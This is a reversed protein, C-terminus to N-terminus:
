LTAFQTTVTLDAAALTAIQHGVLLIHDGVEAGGSKKKLKTIRAAVVGPVRQLVAYVDSLHVPQGLERADFAFHAAVADEAAKEVTELLHADDVQLTAAVAFPVNEHSRLRLARNVDRKADLDAAITALANESLVAGGEAAVTLRVVREFDDVTWTARAKAVTAHERAADEFDRLSVIRGFTRVTNPANVRILERSEGAAGGEAPAPNTASKLGAPRDLLNSLAGARVNGAKGVGTRYKATVNSRGTNLRSGPEGGFQVSMTEDDEIRTVFVREDKGRGLLTEVETWKVGDVRVELTNAVSNRAGARPVFTVPTKAVGFSQFRQSADGSGLVEHKVTEGHTVRAVNGYLTATAADLDRTLGPTFTIHLFGASTSTSVVTATHPQKKADDLLITRGKELSAIEAAPVLVVSGNILAPHKKTALPLPDGHVEVVTIRRRDALDFMPVGRSVWKDGTWERLESGGDSFARLNGASDHACTLSEVEPEHSLTWGNWGISNPASQKKLYVGGDHGRAFAYIRGNQQRGVALRDIWGGLSSWGSWNNGSRRNRWLAHDSGVGFLEVTTGDAHVAAELARVIGALPEWGSWAGGPTLERRTFVTNHNKRRIFIELAGDGRTTATLLDCSHGGLPEWEGWSGTPLQRRLYPKSDAGRAALYALQKSTGATLRDRPEDGFSTWGEDSFRWLHNSADRAILERKGSKGEAAVVDAFNGGLSHWETWGDADVRSWVAGDDAVVYVALLDNGCAAAPRGAVSMAFTVVSVNAAYNQLAVNQKTKMVLPKTEVSSVTALRAAAGYQESGARLILMRTGANLDTVGRDLPLMNAPGFVGFETKVETVKVNVNNTGEDSVTHELTTAPTNSGFLAFQRGTAVARANMPTMGGRQVAPTWVITEADLKAVTKWEASQPDFLALAAGPALELQAALPGGTSNKAFPNWAAPVGRIRQANLASSAALAEITEFKQPKENQGPVSQVRLGVPIQLTKGQDLFFAVFTTAAAGPSPRYDLLAALRMVSERHVATRLFAENAIREQYFTLIDGLYAWMDILAVGYDTEDRATWTALAPQTAIRELMARRFSGYTGIRYAIRSLAPRNVIANPTTHVGGRCCGCGKLDYSM